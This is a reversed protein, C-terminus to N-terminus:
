VSNKGNNAVVANELTDSGEDLRSMLASGLLQVQKHQQAFKEEFKENQQEFKKDFKEEQHRLKMTLQEMKALIILNQKKLAIVELRYDDTVDDVGAVSELLVEGGDEAIIVDDVSAAITVLIGLNQSTLLLLAMQLCLLKM